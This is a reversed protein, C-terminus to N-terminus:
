EKVNDEVNTIKSELERIWLWPINIKENNTNFETNM